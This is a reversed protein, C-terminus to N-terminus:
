ATEGLKIAQFINLRRVFVALVLMASMFLAAFLVYILYIRPWDIVIVFPVARTESAATAHLFPIYLQSASVGLATGAILGLGLLLALESALLLAVQTQNLGLARLM